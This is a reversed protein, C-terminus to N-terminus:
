LNRVCIGVHQIVAFTTLRDDLVNQDFMMMKTTIMVLGYDEHPSLRWPLLSCMPM